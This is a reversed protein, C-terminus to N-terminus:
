GHVKVGGFHEALYGPDAVKGSQQRLKIARRVLWLRRPAAGHLDEPVRQGDCLEAIPLRARMAASLAPGLSAAEDLKTLICAAPALASHARVCEDLAGLDANAPLVLLSRLRERASEFLATQEGLRLDRQSVGASDILVLRRDAMSDLAASLERPNGAIRMPVGLVRAYTALQERAAVRYGDASILGVSGRGHLRLERAAIKAITTTKGAGTPGILAWNGGDALLNADAVPIHRVLLALAIRGADEPNTIAPLANVLARAIDPAIDLSSLDRLVKAHFPERRALDDWALKALQYELMRRLATVERRMAVIAEDQSWVLQPAPTAAVAEASAAAAVPAPAVTTAAPAPAPASEVTVAKVVNAAPTVLAEPIEEVVPAVVAAAIAVPSRAIPAQRLRDRAVQALVRGFGSEGHVTPPAVIVTEMAAPEPAAAASRPQMASFAGMALSPDYDMAAIVEIGGDVRQSSLIVADPGQEDRVAALADRMNNALFRRIKM